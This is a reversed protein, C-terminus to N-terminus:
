VATEQVVGYDFDRLNQFADYDHPNLLFTIHLYLLKITVIDGVQKQVNCLYGVADQAISMAVGLFFYGKMYPPENSTGHFATIILTSEYVFKINLKNFTALVM